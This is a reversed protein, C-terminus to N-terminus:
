GQAHRDLISFKILTLDKVEESILGSISAMHPGLGDYVFMNRARWLHWVIVIPLLRMIWVLILPGCAQMWWAVCKERVGCGEVTVGLSTEFFRWVQQPIDGSVFHTEFIRHKEKCYYCWSPGHVNFKWFKDMVPIRDLAVRWLHVSMKLPM